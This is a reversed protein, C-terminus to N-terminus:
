SNKIIAYKSVERDALTWLALSTYFGPSNQCKWLTKLKQLYDNIDFPLLAYFCHQPPLSKM